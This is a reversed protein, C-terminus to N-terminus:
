HYASHVFLVISVSLQEGYGSAHKKAKALREPLSTTIINEDKFASVTRSFQFRPLLYFFTKISVALAQIIDDILIHTRVHCGTASSRVITTCHKSNREQPKVYASKVTKPVVSLLLITIFSYCLFRMSTIPRMTSPLCERHDRKGLAICIFDRKFTICCSLRQMQPFPLPAVAFRSYQNSFCRCRRILQSVNALWRTETFDAM